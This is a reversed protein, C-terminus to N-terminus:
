QAETSTAGADGADDATLSVLVRTKEVADYVMVQLMPFRTKLELGEARADSESEFQKKMRGDIELIFGSSPTIDARHINKPQADDDAPLAMLAPKKM